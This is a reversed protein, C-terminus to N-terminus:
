MDREGRSNWSNSFFSKREGRSVPSLFEPKEKKERFQALFNLIEREGRSVRCLFESKEKEERIHLFQKKLNRKRKEIPNKQMEDIVAAWHGNADIIKIWRSRMCRTSFLPFSSFSLPNINSCETWRNCMTFMTCMTGRLCLGISLILRPMRTIITILTMKHCSFVLIWFIIPQPFKSTKETLVIMCLLMLFIPWRIQDKPTWNCAIEQFHSTVLHCLAPQIITTVQWVSKKQWLPVM